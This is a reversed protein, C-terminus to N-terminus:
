PNSMKTEMERQLEMIAVEYQERSCTIQESGDITEFVACNSNNNMHSSTINDSKIYRGNILM